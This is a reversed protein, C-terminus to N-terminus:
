PVLEIYLYYHKLNRYDLALFIGLQEQRTKWQQVLVFDVNELKDESAQPPTCGYGLCGSHLM